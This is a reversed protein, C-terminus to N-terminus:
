FVYFCVVKVVALQLIILILVIKNARAANHEVCESASLLAVIVTCFEMEDARMSITSVSRAVNCCLSFVFSLMIM